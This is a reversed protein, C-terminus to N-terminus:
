VLNGEHVAKIHKNLKQKAASSYGCVECQFPKKGEHVAEIHRNLKNKEASAYKCHECKFPKKGEHVAQIHKKLTGKEASAYKCHDYQFTRRKKFSGWPSVFLAHVQSQPYMTLLLLASSSAFVAIGEGM